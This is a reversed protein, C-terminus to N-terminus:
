DEPDAPWSNGCSGCTHTAHGWRGKCRGGCFPCSKGCPYGEQDAVPGQGARARELAHAPTGPLNQASPRGGARGTMSTM